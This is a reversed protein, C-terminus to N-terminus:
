ENDNKDGCVQFYTNVILQEFDQHAVQIEEGEDDYKATMNQRLIENIMDIEEFNVVPSNWQNKKIEYHMHNISIIWKECCDFWQNFLEKDVFSFISSFHIAVRPDYFRFIYKDGKYKLVMLESLFTKMDFVSMKSKIYTQFMSMQDFHSFANTDGYSGLKEWLEIKKNNDLSNLDILTPTLETRNFVNVGILYFEVELEKLIQHANQWLAADFIIFNADLLISADSEIRNIPSQKELRM